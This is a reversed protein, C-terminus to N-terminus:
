IAFSDGLITRPKESIIKRASAESFAHSPM